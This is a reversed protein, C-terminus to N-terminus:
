ATTRRRCCHSQYSCCRALCVQLARCKAVLVRNMNGDQASKLEDQLRAATDAKADLAQRLAAFEHAIAPDLLLTQVQLLTAPCNAALAQRAEIAELTRESALAASHLLHDQM